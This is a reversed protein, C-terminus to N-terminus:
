VVTGRPEEARAVSMELYRRRAIEPQPDFFALLKSDDMWAPTQGAATSRFSSWEWEEPARCLGAIVPNSAIYAAVTCVQGDTRMSVAGYRGQFVHGVRDHRQNFRQAYAGQLLRMGESLNPDRTEVLLHVHNNMLCYSLARWRSRVAVAELGHLYLRRDIDDLYIRERNNGRAFVHYIGGAQNERPKRPM